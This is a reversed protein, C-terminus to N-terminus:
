KVNLLNERISRFIRDYTEQDGAPPLNVEIRVTLGFERGQGGEAQPQSDGARVKTAKPQKAPRSKASGKPTAPAPVSPTGHGSFGALLQFTGAQKRGVLDTTKDKNRFFAILKSTSLGWAADKHLDFLDGYAAKVLDEFAKQFDGDEHHSFVTEAKLTRNGDKDLAGIFRLVNIVYSENNPAIGLQKLTEATVNPPFSKRFQTIAAAIGGPGPAYPHKEAM